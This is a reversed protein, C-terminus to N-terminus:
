AITRGSWIRVSLWSPLEKSPEKTLEKYINKPLYNCVILLHNHYNKMSIIIKDVNTITSAVEM